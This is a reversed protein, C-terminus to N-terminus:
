RSFLLLVANILKLFIIWGSGSHVSACTSVDSLDVVVVMHQLDKDEEEEGDEFQGKGQLCLDKSLIVPTPM